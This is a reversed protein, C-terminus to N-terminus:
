VDIDLTGGFLLAIEDYSNPAADNISDRVAGAEFGCRYAEALAVDSTYVQTDADDQAARRKAEREIRKFEDEESNM